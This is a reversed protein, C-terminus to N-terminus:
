NAFSGVSLNDFLWVFPFLESVSIQFIWPEDGELSVQSSPVKHHIRVGSVLSFQVNLPVKSLGESPLSRVKMVVAANGAKDAKFKGCLDLFDKFASYPLVVSNSM